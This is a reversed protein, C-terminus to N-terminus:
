DGQRYRTASFRLAVIASFEGKLNLDPKILRISLCFLLIYIKIM